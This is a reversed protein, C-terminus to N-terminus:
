ICINVKPETNLYIEALKKFVRNTQKNIEKKKSSAFSPATPMNIIDICTNERISIQKIKKQIKGSSNQNVMGTYLLKSKEILQQEYSTDAIYAM